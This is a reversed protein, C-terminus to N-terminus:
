IECWNSFRRAHDSYGCHTNYLLTRARLKLCAKKRKLRFWIIMNIAYLDTTFRLALGITILGVTRQLIM